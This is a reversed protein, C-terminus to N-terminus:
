KKSRRTPVTTRAGEDEARCQAGTARQTVRAAAHGIRIDSASPCPESNMRDIAAKVGAERHQTM